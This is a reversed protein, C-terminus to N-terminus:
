RTGTLLELAVKLVPVDRQYAIRATGRMGARLFFREGRLDAWPQELELAVPHHPLGAPGEAEPSSVRSDLGGSIATFRLGPLGELEVTAQQGPRVRLIGVDPVQSLFHISRADVVQLLEEGARVHRNLLGAPTPGVVFGELEATLTQARHREELQQAQWSWSAAKSEAQRLEVLLGGLRRCPGELQLLRDGSPLHAHAATEEQQLQRLRQEARRVEETDPPGQGRLWRARELELWAQKVHAGTLEARLLDLQLAQCRRERDLRELARQEGQLAERARRLRAQAEALRKGATGREEELRPESVRVLPQGARVWAGPEVLVESVVGSSGPHVRQYRRVRVEGAADVTRDIRCLGGLLLGTAMLLGVAGPLLRLLIRLARM